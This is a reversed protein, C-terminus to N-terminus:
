ALAELRDLWLSFGVGPIPKDAGLLTLLRDYRGGGARARPQAFQL